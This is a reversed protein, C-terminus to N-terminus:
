ETAALTYLFAKTTNVQGSLSPNIGDSLYFWAEPPNGMRKGTPDVIYGTKGSIIQRVQALDEDSIDFDFLEMKDLLGPIVPPPTIWIVPNDTVEKIADEIGEQEDAKIGELPNTESYFKRTKDEYKGDKIGGEDMIVLFGNELSEVKVSKSYGDKEVRRSWTKDKEKDEEKYTRINM